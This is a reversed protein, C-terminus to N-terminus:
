LEFHVGMGSPKMKNNCDSLWIVRAALHLPNGTPLEITLQLIDEPEHLTECCIFAGGASMNKTEAHEIGKLTDITVPYIADFRPYARQEEEVM